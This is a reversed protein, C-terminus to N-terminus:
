DLKVGMLGTTALVYEFEKFLEKGCVSEGNPDCMLVNLTHGDLSVHCNKPGFCKAVGYISGVSVFNNHEGCAMQIIFVADMKGNDSLNAVLDYRQSNSIAEKFSSLLVSALKGDCTPQLFIARPRRVLQQDQAHDQPQQQAWITMSALIVLLVFLSGKVRVVELVVLMNTGIIIRTDCRWSAAFVNSVHPPPPGLALSHTVTHM